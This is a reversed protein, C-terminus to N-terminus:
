WILSGMSYPQAVGAFAPFYSLKIICCFVRDTVFNKAHFYKESILFFIEQTLGADLRKKKINEGVGM